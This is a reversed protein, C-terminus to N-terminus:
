IVLDVEQKDMIACDVFSAITDLVMRLRGMNEYYPIGFRLVHGVKAEVRCHKICKIHIDKKRLFEYLPYPDYDSVLLSVVPSVDDGMFCHTIGAHGLIGNLERKLYAALYTSRDLIVKPGIERYRKLSQRLREYLLFDQGGRFASGMPKHIKM